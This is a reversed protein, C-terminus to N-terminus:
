NLTLEFNILYNLLRFCISPDAIKKKFSWGLFLF